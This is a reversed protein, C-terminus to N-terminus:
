PKRSPGARLISVFISLRLNRAVFGGFDPRKCFVWRAGSWEVEHNTPRKPDFVVELDGFTGTNEPEHVTAVVCDVNEVKIWEGPEVAPREAM